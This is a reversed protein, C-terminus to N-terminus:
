GDYLENFVVLRLLKNFYEFHVLLCVSSVDIVLQFLESLRVQMQRNFVLRRSYNLEKHKILLCVRVQERVVGFHRGQMYSSAVHVRRDNLKQQQVFSCINFDATREV